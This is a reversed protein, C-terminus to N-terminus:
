PQALPMPASIGVREHPRVESFTICAFNASNGKWSSDPFDSYTEIQPTTLPWFVPRLHRMEDEQVVLCLRDLVRQSNELCDRWASRHIFGGPTMPLSPPLLLPPVWAGSVGQSTWPGSCARGESEVHAALPPRIDFPGPEPKRMVRGPSRHRDGAPLPAAHSRESGLNHVRGRGAGRHLNQDRERWM